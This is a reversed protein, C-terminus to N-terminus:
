RKLRDPAFEGYLELAAKKYAEHAEEKTSFSGLHRTGILSFWQKGGKSGTLGKSQIRYAGTLGSSNNKNMRTRNQMNQSHTSLRLNSWRNDTADGNIHDVVADAPPWQGTMWFWALRHELHNKGELAVVRYSLRTRANGKRNCTWGIKRPRTTFEGTTPNYDVIDRLHDFTLITRKAMSRGGIPGQDPTAPSQCRKRRRCPPM